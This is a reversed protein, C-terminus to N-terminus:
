PKQGEKSAPKKADCLGHWMLATVSEPPANPPKDCLNPCNIYITYPPQADTGKPICKASDGSLPPRIELNQASVGFCFLVLLAAAGLLGQALTM